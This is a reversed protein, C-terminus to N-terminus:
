IQEKKKPGGQVFLIDYFNNVIDNATYVLAWLLNSVIHDCCWINRRQLLIKFLFILGTQYTPWLVRHSLTEALWFERIRSHRWINAVMFQQVITEYYITSMQQCYEVIYQKCYIATRTVGAKWKFTCQWIKQGGTKILGISLPSEYSDFLFFRM